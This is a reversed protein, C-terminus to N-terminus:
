YLRIEDLKITGSIQKWFPAVANVTGRCGIAAIGVATITGGTFSYITTTEVTNTSYRPKQGDVGLWFREFRFFSNTNEPLSALVLNRQDVRSVWANNPHGNSFIGSFVLNEWNTTSTSQHLNNALFYWGDAPSNAGAAAQVYVVPRIDDKAPSGKDEPIPVGQRYNRIWVSFHKVSGISFGGKPDTNGSKNMDYAIVVEHKLPTWVCTGDSGNGGPSAEHLSYNGYPSQHGNTLIQVGYSAGMAAGPLYDFWAYGSQSMWRTAENTKVLIYEDNPGGRGALAVSAFM